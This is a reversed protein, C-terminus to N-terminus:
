RFRRNRWPGAISISALVRDAAAQGSRVAGDVGGQDVASGALELGAFSQLERRLEAIMEAHVKPYQPLADPWRSVWGQLPGGSLSLPGELARTAERVWYSDPQNLEESEPRFFARVLEADPPARGAFKSSCFVCARLGYQDPNAVVFGSADLPHGVDSDRFALSVTASSIHPLSALAPAPGVLRALLSASRPAPLALVVADARFRPLGGGSLTWGGDEWDVSHVPWHSRLTASVSLRHVLAAVLTGLGAQLTVLGSGLDASDVQLGLLRVAEGEGLEGLCGDHFVLARNTQQPILRNALGLHTCLERVAARRAPFGEAGHEILFGDARETRVQGGFRPAIEFVTVTAGRSVLADAAVLGALGGGVVAVHM